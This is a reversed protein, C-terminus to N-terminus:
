LSMMRIHEDKCNRGIEVSSCLVVPDPNCGLCTVCHFSTLRRCITCHRQIVCFTCLFSVDPVLDQAVAEGARKRLRTDEKETNNFLSFAIQNCFALISDDDKEDKHLMMESRCLQHLLRFGGKKPNTRAWDKLFALPFRKHATKVVGFFHLGYRLLAEPIFLDSLV